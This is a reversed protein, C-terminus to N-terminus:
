APLLAHGRRWVLSGSQGIVRPFASGRAPSEKQDDLWLLVTQAQECFMVAWGQERETGPRGKTCM